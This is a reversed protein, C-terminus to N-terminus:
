SPQGSIRDGHLDLWRIAAICLDLIPLPDSALLENQQLAAYASGVSLVVAPDAIM